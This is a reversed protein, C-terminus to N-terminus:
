LYEYEYEDQEIADKSLNFQEAYLEIFDDIFPAGEDHLRVLLNHIGCKQKENVMNGAQMKAMNTVFVYESDFCYKCYGTDCIQNIAHEADPYNEYQLERKIQSVSLSYLGIMNFSKNTRLYFALGLLAPNSSIITQLEEGNWINSYIRAFRKASKTM